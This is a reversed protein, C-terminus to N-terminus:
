DLMKELIIRIKDLRFHNIWQTFLSSLDAYEPPIQKVLQLMLDDELEIAAFYSKKRWEIPMKKLDALIENEERHLVASAPLLPQTYSYRVNLHRAIKNFIALAEYPKSMLDDFGISLVQQRNAESLSATIAIMIPRHDSNYNKIQQMAERETMEPIQLNVFVLDPQWDRVITIAEQVNQAKKTKFGVKILWKVLLQRNIKDDDIVLIRDAPQHPQLGIVIKAFDESQNPPNTVVRVPIEFIFQSGVGVESKVTIEGGMRQIFQRSIALGLGVGEQHQKGKQTQRFAQFITPIEAPPIGIGTDELTFYLNCTEKFHTQYVSSYHMLSQCRILSSVKLTIQGIETFKIANNLLNLLIQRLKLDDVEVFHPVDESIDISLKLGKERIKPMLLAKVEDLLRYIDVEQWHIELNNTEIKSLDLINNILSLLYESSQHIITINEQNEPTLTQSLKMLQSFGLIANLPTRLEHSTNALFTSKVQYAKEATNKAQKLENEMQKRDNIDQAQVIFYLPQQQSDRVLSFCVLSWQDLHHKPLCRKEFQVYKEEGTLLQQFAKKQRKSSEPHTVKEIHMGMLESPQYDLVRCLATNVQLFQYDLNLMAMGAASDEFISRFKEESESLALEIKKRESINRTVCMVEHDNLQVIKAEFYTDEEKIMLCYEVTEIKHKALASQIGQQLLTAAKIPLVEKIKKGLFQEPALYLDDKQATKYDLITGDLCPLRM